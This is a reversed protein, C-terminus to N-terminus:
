PNNQKEKKEQSLVTKIFHYFGTTIGVIAGMLTFWPSSDWRTDLRLGIYTFFIVAIAWVLGINMYPALKRYGEAISSINKNKQDLTSKHNKNPPNKYM